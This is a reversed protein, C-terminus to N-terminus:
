RVNMESVIHSAVPFFDFAVLGLERVVSQSLANKPQLGGAFIEVNM